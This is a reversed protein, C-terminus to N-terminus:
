ALVFNDRKFTLYQKVYLSPVSFYNIKELKISVLFMPESRNASKIETTHSHVYMSDVEKM